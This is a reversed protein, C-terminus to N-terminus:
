RIRNAPQHNGGLWHGADVDSGGIDYAFEASLRSHVGSDLQTKGLHLIWDFVLQLAETEESPEAFSREEGCDSLGHPSVQVAMRNLPGVPFSSLSGQSARFIRWTSM